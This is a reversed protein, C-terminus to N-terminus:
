NESSFSEREMEELEKMTMEMWEGKKIVINQHHKVLLTKISKDIEYAIWGLMYKNVEVSVHKYCISTQLGPKHTLDHYELDEYEFPNNRVEGDITITNITLNFTTKSFHTNHYHTRIKDISSYSTEKIICANDPIVKRIIGPIRKHLHLNKVTKKVKGLHEHHEETSEVLEIRTGTRKDERAQLISGYKNGRAYEESSIPLIFGYVKDVRTM